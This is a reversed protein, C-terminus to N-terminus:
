VRCCECENLAAVLKRMVLQCGVALAGPDIMDEGLCGDAIETAAPIGAFRLVVVSEAQLSHLGTSAAPRDGEVDEPAQGISSGPEFRDFFGLAWAQEICDALGATM